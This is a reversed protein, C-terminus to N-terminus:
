LLWGGDAHVSVTVGVAVAIEILADIVGLTHLIKHLRVIWRQRSGAQGYAGYVDLFVVYGFFQQGAQQGIVPFRFVENALVTQELLQGLQKNLAGQVSLQGLVQAM